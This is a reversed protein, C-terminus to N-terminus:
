LLPERCMSFVIKLGHGSNVFGKPSFGHNFIRIVDQILDQWKIIKALGIRMVEMARQQLLLSPWRNYGVQFHVFKWYDKILLFSLSLLGGSLDM